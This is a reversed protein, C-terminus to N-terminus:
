LSITMKRDGDFTNDLIGASNYRTAAFAIGGNVGAGSFLCGGAVIKGDLQIALSSIASSNAGFDTQVIGGNGFSNDSSGDANVRM